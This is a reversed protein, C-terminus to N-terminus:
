SKIIKWATPILLAISVVVVPVGLAAAILQEKINNLQNYIPFVSLFANIGIGIGAFLCKLIELLIKMTKEM